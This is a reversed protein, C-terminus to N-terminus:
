GLEGAPGALLFVEGGPTVTVDCHHPKVGGGGGCKVFHVEQVEEASSTDDGVGPAPAPAPTEADGKALEDCSAASTAVPSDTDDAPVTISIDEAQVTASDNNQLGVRCAEESSGVANLGVRLSFVLKETVIPDQNLNM